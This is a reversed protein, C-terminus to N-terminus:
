LAWWLKMRSQVNIPPKRTPPAPPAIRMRQIQKELKQHMDEIILKSTRKDFDKISTVSTTVGNIILKGTQSEDNSTEDEEDSSLSNLDSNSQSPSQPPLQEQDQLMTRFEQISENLAWLQSLLSLDLQRLGNQPLCLFDKLRELWWVITLMSKWVYLGVRFFCTHIVDISMMDRRTSLTWLNIERTEWAANVDLDAWWAYRSTIRFLFKRAKGLCSGDVQDNGRANKKRLGNLLM